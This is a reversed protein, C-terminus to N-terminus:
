GTQPPTWRPRFRRTLTNPLDLSARWAWDSNGPQPRLRRFWARNQRNGRPREVLALAERADRLEVWRRRHRLAECLEPFEDAVDWLALFIALATASAIQMDQRERAAFFEDWDVPVRRLALYLDLFQKARCAGRQLDDCISAVLLMLTHDDSLTDFPHGGLSIRQREPWVVAEDIGPFLRGKLRGHLDLELGDARKLTITQPGRKPDGERMRRLKKAIREGAHITSADFGVSAIAELARELSLLPVLMDVDYQHRRLPDGYFKEGFYLGKLILCPIGAGGLADRVAVSMELLARVRAPREAQLTDLQSALTPGILERTQPDGSLPTFWELLNQAKAFARFAEADFDAVPEVAAPFAATGDLLARTARIGIRYDM